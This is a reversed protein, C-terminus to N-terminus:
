PDYAVIDDGHTTQYQQVFQQFNEVLYEEADEFKSVLIDYDRVHRSQERYWRHIHPGSLDDQPHDRDDIRAVEVVRGDSRVWFLLAAFDAVGDRGDTELRVGIQYERDYVAPSLSYHYDFEFDDAPM